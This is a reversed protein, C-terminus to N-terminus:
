FAVGMGFYPVFGVGVGFGTERGGFVAERERIGFTVPLKIGPQIFFGGPNGVDIRWGIEPSIAAGLIQTTGLYGDPANLATHIHFGLSAGVFFAGSWPYFRASAHVGMENWFFFLSSWYANAGISWQENLMREYRIGGGILSVEGSIWNAQAFAGSAVLIALVLSFLTKKMFVGITGGTARRRAAKSKDARPATGEVLSYKYLGSVPLTNGGDTQSGRTGLFFGRAM